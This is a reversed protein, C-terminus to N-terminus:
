GMIIYSGNIQIPYLPPTVQGVVTLFKVTNSDIYTVISSTNQGQVVYISGDSMKEYEYDWIVLPKILLNLNHKVTLFYGYHNSDGYPEISLDNLTFVGTIKSVRTIIDKPRNIEEWATDSNKQLATIKSNMEDLKGNLESIYNWLTQIKNKTKSYVKKM